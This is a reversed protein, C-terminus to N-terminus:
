DQHHCPVNQSYGEQVAISNLKIVQVVTVCTTDCIILHSNKKLIVTVSITFQFKDNVGGLVFICFILFVILSFSLMSVPIPILGENIEDIKDHPHAKDVTCGVSQCTGLIEKCTGLLRFVFMLLLFCM